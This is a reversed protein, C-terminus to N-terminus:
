NAARGYFYCGMQHGGIIEYCSCEPGSCEYETHRMDPFENFDIGCNPCKDDTPPDYVTEFTVLPLEPPIAGEPLEAFTESRIVLRLTQPLYADRLQIAIVEADQPLPNAVVKFRRYMGGRWGSVKCFEVFLEPTLDLTAVRM